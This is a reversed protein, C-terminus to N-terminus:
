EPTVEILLSLLVGGLLGYTNVFGKIGKNGKDERCVWIRKWREKVFHVKGIYMHADLYM